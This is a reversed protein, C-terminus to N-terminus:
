LHFSNPSRSSLYEPSRALETSLFVKKGEIKEFNQRWAQSDSFIWIRMNIKVNNNRTIEKYKKHMSKRIVSM